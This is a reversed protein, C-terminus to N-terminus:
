LTKRMEIHPIGADDFVEGLAAYGLREYFARARVQAGLTVVAAGRRRAEDELARLILQGLGRGRADDIVAVRGIKAATESLPVVRGAGAPVGRYLGLAHVTAPERDHEDVELSPPVGQEEVFVTWRIRLCTRLDDDSGAMRVQLDTTM